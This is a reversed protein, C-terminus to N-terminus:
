LGGKRVVLDHLEQLPHSVLYWGNSHSCGDSHEISTQVWEGDILVELYDGCHLGYHGRTWRGDRADFWLYFIRWGRGVADALVARENFAKTM